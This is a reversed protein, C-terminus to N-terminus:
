AVGKRRTEMCNEVTCIEYKSLKPSDAWSHVHDNSHDTPSPSGPNSGVTGEGQAITESGGSGGEDATGGTTGASQTDGASPVAPAAAARGLVPSSKSMEERSPRKGKAAYGLNALARGIASTECNELASTANVGRQTDKEQAIGSAAPRGEQDRWAIAKIIYSGDGHEVLVTKIRGQPHDKWFARLRDEVPEYDDLFSM